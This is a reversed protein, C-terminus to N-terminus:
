EGVQPLPPYVCFQCFSFAPLHAIQGVAFWVKGDTKGVTRSAILYAVLEELAADSRLVDGVYPLSFRLFGAVEELTEHVVEGEEGQPQFPTGLM